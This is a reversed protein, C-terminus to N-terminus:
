AMIKTTVYYYFRKRYLKPPETDIDIDCCSYICKKLLSAIKKRKNWNQLIDIIGIIYDENKEGNILNPFDSNVKEDEDCLGLILSYDM